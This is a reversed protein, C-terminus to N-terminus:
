RNSEQPAAWNIPDDFSDPVTFAGTDSGLHRRGPIDARTLKMIPAGRNSITYEEGAAIRLAIESLRAKAETIGIDRMDGDQAITVGLELPAIGFIKPRAIERSDSRRLAQEM